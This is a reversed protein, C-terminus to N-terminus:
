GFASHSHRMQQLVFTISRCLNEAHRLADYQMIPCKSLRLKKNDATFTLILLDPEFEPELVFYNLNFRFYM